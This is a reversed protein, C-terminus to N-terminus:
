VDRVSAVFGEDGFELEALPSSSLFAHLSQSTTGGQLRAFEEAAVVVVAERGHLTVVQPGTSRAQRVVESFRSKAEELRWRCYTGGVVTEGETAPKSRVRPKKM